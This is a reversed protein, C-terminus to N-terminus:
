GGCGAPRGGQWGGLGGPPAVERPFGGQAEHFIGCGAGRHPRCTATGQLRTSVLRHAVTVSIGLPDGSHADRTFHTEHHGPCSDGSTVSREWSSAPGGPGRFNTLRHPGHREGGVQFVGVRRATDGPSRLLLSELRAGDDGSGSAGPPLAQASTQPSGLSADSFRRHPGRPQRAPSARPTAPPAAAGEQSCGQKM